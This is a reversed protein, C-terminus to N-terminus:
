KNRNNRLFLRELGAATSGAVFIILATPSEGVGAKFDDTFFYALISGVVVVAVGVPSGENISTPPAIAFKSYKQNSKGKKTYGANNEKQSKGRAAAHQSLLCREHYSSHFPASSPNALHDHRRHTARKDEGGLFSTTTSFSSLPLRAFAADALTMTTCFFVLLQMWQPRGNRQALM